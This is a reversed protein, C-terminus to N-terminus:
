KKAKETKLGLLEIIKTREAETLDKMGRPKPLSETAKFAKGLLDPMAAMIKPMQVQMKGMVAPDAFLLMQQSAFSAGTPTAFFSKLEALQVPSFKSQISLALGDRLDPEMTEFLPIMATFMSEMTLGMRQKFAPDIIAMIEDSKAKDLAAAVKEDAGVARAIQGLPVSGMNNFMGSLMQTFTPGLLKRYTGDPFLKTAIETALPSAATQQAEAPKVETQALAPTAIGLALIALIAKKM